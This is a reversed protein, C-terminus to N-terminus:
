RAGDSLATTQKPGHHVKPWYTEFVFHPSNEHDHCRICQERALFPTRTKPNAVHASSPGHCNECGVHIRDPSGAVNVFGAEHGYGTTHCQQCSPDYQAKKAVLVEFAHSHRSNHWVSQDAAHCKACSDSGAIRYDGAGPGLNSALGAEAVTFDRAALNRYYKALNDAQAADEALDSTVEVPGVSAIEFPTKGTRALEIRALFKGKNTASMVTVPGITAPKMAQGTPGGIIFDVEPLSQALSRLGGEDFYALLIRVDAKVDRLADLCATVPERASWAANTVVAPDTVGTVAIKLGGREVVVHRKLPSDGSAAQLNASIWTVGSKEALRALQQPDLAAEPGGVNHAELGMAALGRLISELKLQQYETTGASSGGADLYLIDNPKGFNALLTARRALGGSQNSACGCPTIWGATDGSVVITMPNNSKGCGVLAVTFLLLLCYHGQFPWIHYGLAFRLPARPRHSTRFLLGSLASYLLHKSMDRGKLAENEVRATADREKLARAGM